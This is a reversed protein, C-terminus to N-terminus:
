VKENPFNLDIKNDIFCNQKNLFHLLIIWNKFFKFLSSLNQLEINNISLNERHEVLKISVIFFLSLFM